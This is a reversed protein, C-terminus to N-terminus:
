PKIYKYGLFLVFSISTIAIGAISVNKAAEYEAKTVTSGATATCDPIYHIIVAFFAIFLGMFTVLFSWHNLFKRVATWETLFYIVVLLSISLTTIGLGYLVEILKRDGPSLCPPLPAPAGTAVGPSPPTQESDIYRILDRCTNVLWAGYATFTIFIFTLFFIFIERGVTTGFPLILPTAHLHSLRQSIQSTSKKDTSM